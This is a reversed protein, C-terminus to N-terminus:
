KFALLALLGGGVIAWTTWSWGAAPSGDPNTGCVGLIQCPTPVGSSGPAGGAGPLTLGPGYVQNSLAQVLGPTPTTAYVKTQVGRCLKDAQDATMTGGSARIQDSACQAIEQDLTPAGGAAQIVAQAENAGTIWGWWPLSSAGPDGSEALARLGLGRLRRHSAPKRTRRDAGITRVAQAAVFM